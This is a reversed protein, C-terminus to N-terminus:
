LECCNDTVGAEKSIFFTEKILKNRYDNFEFLSIRKLIVYLHLFMCCIYHFQRKIIM